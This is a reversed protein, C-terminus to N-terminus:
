HQFISNPYLVSLKKAKPFIVRHDFTFCFMVNKFSPFRQEEIIVFYFNMMITRIEDRHIMEEQSFTEKYFRHKSQIM